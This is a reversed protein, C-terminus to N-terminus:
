RTEKIWAEPYPRGAAANSYPRFNCCDAAYISWDTNVKVWPEYSQVQLYSM